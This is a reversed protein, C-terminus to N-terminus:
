FRPRSSKSDVSPFKARRVVGSDPPFNLGYPIWWERSTSDENKMEWCIYQAMRALNWDDMFFVSIEEWEGAILGDKWARHVEKKLENSCLFEAAYALHEWVISPERELHLFLGILCYVADDRKIDGFVAMRLLANVAARRVDHHVGRDEILRVLGWVDGDATAALARELEIDLFADGFIVDILRPPLTCLQILPLHAEPERLESLIYLAYLHGTYETERFFGSGREACEMLIDILTPVIADGHLIAAQVADQEFQGTPYEIRCLIETITM